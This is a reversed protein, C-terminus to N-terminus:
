AHEATLQVGVASNMTGATAMGPHGTTGPSCHRRASARRIASCLAHELNEFFFFLAHGDEATIKLGGGGVRKVPLYKPCLKVHTPFSHSVGM